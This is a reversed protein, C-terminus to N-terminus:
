VSWRLFNQHFRSFPASWAALRPVSRGPIVITLIFAKLSLSLSLSFNRNILGRWGSTARLLFIIKVNLGLQVICIRWIGKFWIQILKLMPLIILFILVVKETILIVVLYKDVSIQFEFLLVRHRFNKFINWNYWRM